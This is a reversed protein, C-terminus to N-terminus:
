VFSCLVIILACGGLILVLITLSARHSHFARVFVTDLPPSEVALVTNCSGVKPSDVVNINGKRTHYNLLSRLHGCFNQRFIM